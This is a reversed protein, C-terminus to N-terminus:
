MNYCCVIEKISKSSIERFPVAIYNIYVFLQTYLRSSYTYLYIYIKLNRRWIKSFHRSEVFSIKANCKNNNNATQRKGEKRKM